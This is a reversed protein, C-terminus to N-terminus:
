WMKQQGAMPWSMGQQIQDGIKLNSNIATYNGYLSQSLPYQIYIYHKRSRKKKKKQYINTDPLAYIQSGFM